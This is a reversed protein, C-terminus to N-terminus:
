EDFAMGVIKCNNKNKCKSIIEYTNGKYRKIMMFYYNKHSNISDRLIAESNMDKRFVEIYKGEKSIFANSFSKNKNSNNNCKKFEDDEFTYNIIKSKFGYIRFNDTISYDEYGFFYLKFNKKDILRYFLEKNKERFANLITKAYPFIDINKGYLKDEALINKDKFCNNISVLLLFVITKILINKM